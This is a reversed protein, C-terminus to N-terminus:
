NPEKIRFYDESGGKEAWESRENHCLFWDADPSKWDVLRERAAAFTISIISGGLRCHLRGDTPPTILV